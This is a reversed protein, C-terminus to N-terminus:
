HLPIASVNDIKVTTGEPVLFQFLLVDDGTATFQYFESVFVGVPQNCASVSTSARSNIRVNILGGSQTCKDFYIRFRLNYPIGAVTGLSQSLSALNQTGGPPYPAVRNFQYAFKSNDGPSTISHTSGPIDQAVWPALNCEFDGNRVADNYNSYPVCTPSPTSSSTASTLTSQITPKCSCASSYRAPATGCAASAASPFGTTRTDVSSTFTACFAADSSYLAPSKTPFLARLCSGPSWILANEGLYVSRFCVQRRQMSSCERSQGWFPLVGM